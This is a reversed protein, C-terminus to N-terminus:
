SLLALVFRHPTEIGGLYELIADAHGVQQGDNNTEIGGLYELIVSLM